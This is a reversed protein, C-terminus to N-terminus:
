SAVCDGHAVTKVPARAVRVSRLTLAAGRKRRRARPLGTRAQAVVAASRHAGCASGHTTGCPVVIATLLPETMSRPLRASTSAEPEPVRSSAPVPVIVITAPLTVSLGPLASSARVPMIVSSVLPLTDTSRAPVARARM